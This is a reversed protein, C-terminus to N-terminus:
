SLNLLIKEIGQWSETIYFHEYNALAKKGFLVRTEIKRDLIHRLDDDCLFCINNKLCIDQKNEYSSSIVKKINKNINYKELWKKVSELMEETRATIIYIDYIKSLKIISNIAGEVPPTRELIQPVFICKSMEKYLQDIEDFNLKIKLENYFSTKDTSNINLNKSKLWKM